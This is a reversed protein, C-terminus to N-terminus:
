SATLGSPLNITVNAPAAVTFSGTFPEGLQDGASDFSQMSWTYSDAALSVSVSAAGIPISVAPQAGTTAGTLTVTTSALAGTGAPFETETYSVTLTTM